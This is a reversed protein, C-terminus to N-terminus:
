WWRADFLEGDVVFLFTCTGPIKADDVWDSPKKDSPDAIEEPPNIPPTLSELLHGSKVM